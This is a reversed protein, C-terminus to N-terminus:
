AARSSAGNGESHRRSRKGHYTASTKDEISKPPRGRRRRPPEPVDGNLGVLDRVPIGTKESLLVASRADSVFGAKKWLHIMNTSKRVLFSAELPGGVASIAKEVANAMGAM